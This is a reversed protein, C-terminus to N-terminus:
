DTAKLQRYLTFSLVSVFLTAPLTLGTGLVDYVLSMATFSPTVDGFATALSGYELWAMLAIVVLYVIFAILGLGFLRRFVAWWRGHVLASSRNLSAIVGLDEAVLAYTPFAWTVSLYIGPIIFAISGAILGFMVLVMVGITRWLYRLARRYADGVSHVSPQALVVVEAAVSWFLFLYGLIFLSTPLGPVQALENSASELIHPTLTPWFTIWFLLWFRKHLLQWGDKVLLSFPPLARAAM